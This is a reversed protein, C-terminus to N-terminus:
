REYNMSAQTFSKMNIQIVESCAQGETVEVAVEKMGVVRATKEQCRDCGVPLARHYRLSRNLMRGDLVRDDAELHAYEIRRGPFLESQYPGM